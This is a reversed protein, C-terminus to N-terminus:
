ISFLWLYFDFLISTCKSTTSVRINFSHYKSIKFFRILKNKINKHCIPVIPQKM